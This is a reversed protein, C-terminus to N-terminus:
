GDYLAICYESEYSDYMYTYGGSITLNKIPNAMINLGTMLFNNDWADHHNDGTHHNKSYRYKIHFNTNLMSLANWYTKFKVEYVHDPRNSRDAARRDYIAPGYAREIDYFSAPNPKSGYENHSYRETPACTADNLRYADDIFEFKTRINLKSM